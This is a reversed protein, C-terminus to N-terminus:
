NSYNIFKHGSKLITASENIMYSSL